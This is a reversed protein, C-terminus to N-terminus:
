EIRRRGRRRREEREGEIKASAISNGRRKRHGTNESRGREVQALTGKEERTGVQEREWENTTKKRDM